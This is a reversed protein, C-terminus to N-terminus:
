FKLLESDTKELLMKGFKVKSLSLECFHKTLIALAISIFIVNGASKAEIFNM